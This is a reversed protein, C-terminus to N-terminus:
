REELVQPSAIWWGPLVRVRETIFGGDVTRVQIEVTTEKAV